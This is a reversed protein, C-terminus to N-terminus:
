SSFMRFVPLYQSQRTKKGGLYVATNSASKRRAPQKLIQTKSASIVLGFKRYSDDLNDAMLCVDISFQIFIYHLQTITCTKACNFEIKIYNELLLRIDLRRVFAKM